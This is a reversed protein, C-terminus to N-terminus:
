KANEGVFDAESLKARVGGQMTTLWIEGPRRECVYPYSLWAKAKRAVAVPKSWTRGDDESLALSLEERHWSAARESYQGARREYSTAGEPYLRNWVLLLRGSALRTLKAPASSAAIGSPAPKTWTLGGDRSWSSLFEDLNTRLLLWVRGDRQEVLTGEIAGDHHGRGGIDLLTGPKWTKGQDTSVYPQTAHRAQEYLLPQVPVIVEGKATEIMDRIAGCYGRMIPQADIWTRGGDVSRVSWVDLRTESTPANKAEDWGWKYEPAAQNMCVLILTGARTRVLAREESADFKPGDPLLPRSEWTKGEDRTTLVADKEVALLTQEDLVVFPGLRDSPLEQLRHDLWIGSKLVRGPASNAPADDAWARAAALVVLVWFVARVIRSGPKMSM